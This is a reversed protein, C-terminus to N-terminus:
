PIVDISTSAIVEQLFPEELTVSFNIIWEDKSEPDLCSCQNITQILFWWWRSVALKTASFCSNSLSTLIDLHGTSSSSRTERILSMTRMRRRVSFWSSLVTMMLSYTAQHTDHVHSRSCWSMKQQTLLLAPHSCRTNTSLMSLVCLLTTGPLSSEYHPSSTHFM